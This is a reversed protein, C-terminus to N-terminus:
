PRMENGLCNFLLLPQIHNLKNSKDCAAHAYPTLNLKTACNRVYLSTFQHHFHISTCLFTDYLLLRNLYTSFLFIALNFIALYNLLSRFLSFIFTHGICAFGESPFLTNLQFKIIFLTM